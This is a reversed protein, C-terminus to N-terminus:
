IDYDDDKIICNGRWENFTDINGTYDKKDLLVVETNNLIDRLAHGLAFAKDNNDLKTFDLLVKNNKKFFSVVGEWENETNIVYYKLNTRKLFYNYYKINITDVVFRNTFPFMNLVWEMKDNDPNEFRLRVLHIKETYPSDKYLNENDIVVIDKGPITIKM